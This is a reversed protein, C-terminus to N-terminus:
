LLLAKKAATFEDDTLAGEAHLATLREIESALNPVAPQSPPSPPSNSGPPLSAATRLREIHNQREAESEVTPRIGLAILPGFVGLIFGIVFWQVGNRGKNSAIVATAIGAVIWLAVFVEM